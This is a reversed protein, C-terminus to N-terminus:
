KGARGLCFWPIYSLTRDTQWHQWIDTRTCEEMIALHIKKMNPVMILYWRSSICTFYFKDRGWNQTITAIKEYITLTWVNQINTTIYRIHIWPNQEYQTCHDVMMSAKHVYFISLSQALIPYKHRHQWLQQTNQSIKCMFLQINNMNQITIM